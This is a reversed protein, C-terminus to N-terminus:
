NGSMAAQLTACAPCNGGPRMIAYGAQPDDSWHTFDVNFIIFLRVKGQARSIRVADGLYQAHEAVTLNYPPKWLFAAPLSGWEEGSLYGIETFCLPRAGGVANFYTDVMSPYYRTYHSSAGRPDGSRVSPPMLGENYHIGICDVYNLGGAAVMGSIFPADDCGHPHCGGFYGTPAPAGSIVMTGGNAAKISAHAQQLLSTYTTPSISGSAWERDLNMENWVEIGDAGAAGLEGAFRAYDGFNQPYSTDPSGLVSLLIKFGKAHADTIVGIHGGSSEGPHWKVQRKVWTMGANHMLDPARFDSVQGGLEFNGASAAPAVTPVATPIPAATPPPPQTATPTHTATPPVTPPATTAPVAATPLATNTPIATPTMSATPSPIPSPSPSPTPSSPPATTATPLAKAAVAVSVVELKGIDGSLEAADRPVWRSASHGPIRVQLWHGDRSRGVATYTEGRALRLVGPSSFSPDERAYDRSATITAFLTWFTGSDAGTLTVLDTPNKSQSETACGSSIALSTVVLVVLALRSPNPAM